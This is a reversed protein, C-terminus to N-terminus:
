YDQNIREFSTIKSVLLLRQKYTIHNVGFIQKSKMIFNIMVPIRKNTDVIIHTITDDLTESNLKIYGYENKEMSNNWSTKNKKYYNKSIDWIWEAIDEDDPLLARWEREDYYGNRQKTFGLLYNSMIKTDLMYDAKQLESIISDETEFKSNRFNRYLQEQTRLSVIPYFDRFDITNKSELYWVPNVLNNYYLSILEKDLGIAFKGYKSCHDGIRLLPIDCFSVMPIAVGTTPNDPYDSIKQNTLEPFYGYSQIIATHKTTEEFSYSFRLGSCLIKKFNTYKRTIHFLTHSSIATM